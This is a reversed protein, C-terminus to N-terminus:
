GQRKRRDVREDVKIAAVRKRAEAAWETDGYKDIIQQLFTKAKAPQNIAMYGDASSLLSKCEREATQRKASAVIAPDAKLADHRARV